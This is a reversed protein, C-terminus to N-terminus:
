SRFNINITFITCIKIYVVILESISNWVFRMSHYMIEGNGGASVQLQNIIYLWMHLKKEDKSTSKIFNRSKQHFDTLSGM